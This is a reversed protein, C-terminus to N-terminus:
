FIEMVIRISEGDFSDVFSSLMELSNFVPGYSAWHHRNSDGAASPRVQRGDGQWAVCSYINLGLFMNNPM